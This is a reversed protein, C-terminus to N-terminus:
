PSISLSRFTQNGIPLKKCEVGKVAVGGDDSLLQFGKGAAVPFLAEPRLGKLDIDALQNAADGANGSWMFLAFSGVNATPGAVILYGNGFQEISRIGRQGLDLELPTGFRATKGAILKAPNLLPVILARQHPL